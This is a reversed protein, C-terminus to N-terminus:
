EKQSSKNILELILHGKLDIDEELYKQIKAKEYELSRNLKTITDNMSIVLNTSNQIKNNVVWDTILDDVFRDLFAELNKIQKEFNIDFHVSVAFLQDEYKQLNINAKYINNRIDKTKNLMSSSGPFRNQFGWDKMQKFNFIIKHLHNKSANGKNIATELEKVQNKFRTIQKNLVDLEKSYTSESKLLKDKKEVLRDFEKDIGHLGKLSKKLLDREKILSSYNEDVGRYLLLAHLYEQREIELQQEHTGLIMSFLAYLSLNEMKIVDKEEKALSIALREKKEGKLEITEDLHTLHIILNERRNIDEYLKILKDDINKM